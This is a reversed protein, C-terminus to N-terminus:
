SQRDHAAVQYHMRVLRTATGVTKNLAALIGMARTTGSPINTSITVTASSPRAGGVAWIRFEVSTNAIVLIEVNYYTGANITIGSDTRTEVSNARTVCQLQADVQSDIHVYAGDVSEGGTVVDGFGSRWDFQDTGTSLTDILWRSEYVHNATTGSFTLWPTGVSFQRATRANANTAVTFLWVTMDDDSEVTMAGGNASTITAELDGRAPHDFLYPMRRPTPVNDTWCPGIFGVPDGGVDINAVVDGRYPAVAARGFVSDVTAIGPGDGPNLVTM